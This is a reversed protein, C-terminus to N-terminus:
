FGDTKTFNITFKCLNYRYKLNYHRSNKKEVNVVVRKLKVSDSIYSNYVRFNSICRRICKSLNCPNISSFRFEM